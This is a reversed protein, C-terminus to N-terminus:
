IMVYKNVTAMTIWVSMSIATKSSMRGMLVIKIEIVSKPNKLVSQHAEVSSNILLVTLWVSVLVKM